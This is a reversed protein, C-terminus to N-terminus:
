FVLVMVLYSTLKKILMNNIPTLVNVYKYELSKFYLDKQEVSLVPLNNYECPISDFLNKIESLNIKPYIRILAQNCDENSMSEIFKLPNLVIGDKYFISDFKDDIENNYTPTIRLKMTEDNLILGWSLDNRNNNNIFADVIFMNWFRDKLQPIQKFYHNYKMVIILEDFNIGIRNKFSIKKIEKEVTEDYENKISNYDLIREYKNLFDKCAVVIKGNAYGLKTIHTDIGLMSYIQSGIYESIPFTISKPYKLFWRENNLIIGKKFCYGGYSIGSAQVNDFNELKIM